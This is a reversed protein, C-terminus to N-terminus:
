HRDEKNRPRPGKRIPPKTSNEITNNEQKTEIIVESVIKEEVVLEKNEMEGPENQEVISTEKQLEKEDERLLDELTKTKLIEPIEKKHIFVVTSSQKERYRESNHSLAYEVARQNGAKINQLLGNEAMDSINERGLAIAKDAEKKFRKNKLMWRYFTSRHIGVKLCAGYANGYKELEILLQNETEKSIM